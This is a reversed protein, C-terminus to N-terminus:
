VSWGNGGNRRARWALAAATLALVLLMVSGASLHYPLGALWAPRSLTLPLVQFAAVSTFDWAWHAGIPLWLARRAAYLQCAVVGFCALSALYVPGTAAGGAHVAAYALSSLAVAVPWSTLRTLAQLIALRFVLEEATAIAGLGVLGAALGRVVGGGPAPGAVGALGTALEVALTLAVLAAGLGFGASLQGPAGPAPLHDALREPGPLLRLAVGALGAAFAVYLLDAVVGAPGAGAGHGELVAVLM